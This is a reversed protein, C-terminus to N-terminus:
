LVLINSSVVSDDIVMSIGRVVAMVIYMVGLVAYAEPTRFYLVAAGLGIFLAGFVARIETVGRGGVVDLGIFGLVQNPWFLAVMGTLITAIGAIYKLIELLTMGKESEQLRSHSIPDM